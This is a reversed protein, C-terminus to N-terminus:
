TIHLQSIHRIKPCDEGDPERCRDSLEDNCCYIVLETLSNMRRLVEPLSKLESCRLLELSQLSSLSYLWQPLAKFNGCSKVRLSQLTTVHQLGEPLNVLKPLKTLKLS